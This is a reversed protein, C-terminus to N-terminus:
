SGPASAESVYIAIYRYLQDTRTYPINDWVTTTNDTTITQRRGDSNTITAVGRNSVDRPFSTYGQTLQTRSFEGSWYVKSAGVQKGFAALKDTGPFYETEFRSEGLIHEGPAPKYSDLEAYARHETKVFGASPAISARDSLPHYYDKWTNGGCGTLAAAALCAAILGASVRQIRGEYRSPQLEDM